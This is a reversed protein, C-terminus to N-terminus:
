RAQFGRTVATAPVRAAGCGRGAAFVAARLRPGGGLRAGAPVPPGGRRRQKARPSRGHAFRRRARAFPCRSGASPRARPGARTRARVCAAAGGRAVDVALHGAGCAVGHSCGSRLQCRRRGEAGSIRRGSAARREGEHSVGDRGSAPVSTPARKPTAVAGEVPATETAATETAATVPPPTEPLTETASVAAEATTRTFLARAILGGGVLVVVAAGIALPRVFPQLDLPRPMPPAPTAPVVQAAPRDLAPATVATRLRQLASDVDHHGAAEIARAALRAIELEPRPSAFWDLNFEPTPETGQETPFGSLADGGTAVLAKLEPPASQGKLMLSLLGLVTFPSGHRVGPMAVVRLTGDTSIMCEELLIPTGAATAAADAARAVEVAEQWAIPMELQLLRAVPISTASM